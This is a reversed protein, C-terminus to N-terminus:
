HPPNQTALPGGANRAAAAAARATIAEPALAAKLEGIVQGTEDIVEVDGRIQPSNGGVILPVLTFFLLALAPMILLGILFGKSMVTVTFERKAVLGIRNIM